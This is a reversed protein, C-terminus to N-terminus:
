PAVVTSSSSRCSSSRRLRRPRVASGVCVSSCFSSISFLDLRRKLQTMFPNMEAAAAYAPPGAPKVKNKTYMSLSAVQLVPAHFFFMKKVFSTILSMRSSGMNYAMNLFSTSARRIGVIAAKTLALSEPTEIAAMSLSLNAVMQVGPCLVSAFATLSISFCMEVVHHGLPGTAEHPVVRVASSCRCVRVASTGISTSSSSSSSSSSASRSRSTSSAM